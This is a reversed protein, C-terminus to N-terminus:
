RSSPISLQLPRLKTTKTRLDDHNPWSSALNTHKLNRFRLVLSSPNFVFLAVTFVVVVPAVTGNLESVNYPFVPCNRILCLITAGQDENRRRKHHLKHFM